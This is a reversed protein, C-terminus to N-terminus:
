VASRKRGAPRCVETPTEAEPKPAPVTAAPQKPKAATEGVSAPQNAGSQANGGPKYASSLDIPTNATAKTGAPKDTEPKTMTPMALRYPSKLPLAPSTATAPQAKKEEPGYVSGGWKTNREGEPATAAAQPQKLQQGWGPNATFQGVAATGMAALLGLKRLVRSSTSKSRKM